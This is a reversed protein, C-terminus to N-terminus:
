RPHPGIGPTLPGIIPVSFDRLKFVYDKHRANAHCDVCNTLHGSTFGGGKDGYFYEWDGNRPDYGPPRKIMGGVGTVQMQDGLKEKVVVAGVPFTHQKRALTQEASENVYLHVWTNYHPGNEKKLKEEKRAAGKPNIKRPPAVEALNFTSGCGGMSNNLVEQPIKQPSETMRTFQQYFTFASEKTVVIPASKEGAHLPSFVPLALLSCLLGLRLSRTHPSM